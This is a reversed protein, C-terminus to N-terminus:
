TESYRLGAKQKPSEFELLMFTEKQQLAGGMM